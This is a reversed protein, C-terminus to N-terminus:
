WWTLTRRYILPKVSPANHCREGGTRMIRRALAPRRSYFRAVRLCGDADEVRQTAPGVTHRLRPNLIRWLLRAVGDPGPGHQEDDATCTLAAALSRYVQQNTTAEAVRRNRTIETRTDGSEVIVVRIGFPRVELRLCETMGELAFKSASYLPQYPLAILGGISGVNVIYGGGQRRMTPLVARCALFAGVLNVDIQRKAEEMSTLELPGAIAIGANNVVADLRGERELIADVARQVSQDDTVDMQLMTFPGSGIHTNRSAGYVRLSCAALPSTAPHVLWQRRRQNGGNRTSSSLGRM